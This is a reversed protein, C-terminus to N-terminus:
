KKPLLKNVFSRGMMTTVTGTEEFKLTKLTGWITVVTPIVIGAATLGNRILRDMNEDKAQSKRFDIDEIRKTKENELKNLEIERDLLKTILDVSVKHEDTGMELDKLIELEMQIEENLLTKVDSM